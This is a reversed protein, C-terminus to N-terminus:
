SWSRESHAASSRAQSSTAYSSLVLQTRLTRGGGPIRDKGYESSTCGSRSAILDAAARKPASQADGGGFAGARGLANDSTASRPGRVRTRTTHAVSRDFEWRRRGVRRRRGRRRRRLHRRHRDFQRRLRQGSLKRVRRRLGLANLNEARVPREPIPAGRRGARRAGTTAGREDQEEWRLPPPGGRCFADAPSRHSTTSCRRPGRRAMRARSRPREAPRRPRRRAAARLAEALSAADPECLMALPDGELQEAIGGVRTAVVWRRAAIAAAAAGSQSAEKHSLVLADAWALLAAVEDEPVWRNEVTVGPCRVCRPWSPSEPGSGVVRVEVDDRPGLLRLAAPWCTSGRTPCCGASRSCGCSARWARAAAAAPPRLRVAASALPDAARAACRHEQQPSATPSM